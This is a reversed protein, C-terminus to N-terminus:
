MLQCLQHSSKVSSATGCSSATVRATELIVCGCRVNGVGGSVTRERERLNAASVDEEGQQKQKAPDRLKIPFHRLPLPRLLGGSRGVRRRSCYDGILM